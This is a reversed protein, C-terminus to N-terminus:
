YIEIIQDPSCNSFVKKRLTFYYYRRIMFVRPRIQVASLYHSAKGMPTKRSFQYPSVIFVICNENKALDKAMGAMFSSGDQKFGKPPFLIYVKRHHLVMKFRKNHTRRRIHAIAFPAYATLATLPLYIAFVSASLAFLIGSQLLILVFFIIRIATTIFTYRRVFNVIRCFIEFLSSAKLHSFLYTTYHKSQFLRESHAAKRLNQEAQSGKKKAFPSLSITYAAKELRLDSIERKLRSNEEKLKHIQQESSISNRKSM